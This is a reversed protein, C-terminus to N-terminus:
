AVREEDIAAAAEGKTLPQAEGPRVLGLMGPRNLRALQASTAPGHPEKLQRVTGDAAVFETITPRTV